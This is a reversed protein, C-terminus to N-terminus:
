VWLVPTLQGKFPTIAYNLVYEAVAPKTRTKLGFSIAIIKPKVLTIACLM